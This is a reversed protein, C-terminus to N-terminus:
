RAPPIAQLLANRRLFGYPDFADELGGNGASGNQQSNRNLYEVGSVNYTVNASAGARIFINKNVWDQIRTSTTHPLWLIDGAAMHFNADKGTALRRVDLKVQLDKGGPMRRILTGERIRLDSRPGGAAALVQLYTPRVGSPYNQPGAVGVLGGVYVTNPDAAEVTLIDGDELPDLALAQELSVADTLDIREEHMPRRVRKLTARGSASQSVGGAAAIAFLPNCETRRLPILGPATVAGLVLVHTSDFTEVDVVVSLDRVVAPVFAQRIRAEVDELALGVVPVAGVTPLLVQGARNVRARLPSPLGLDVGSLGIVLMDGPGVRYPGMGREVASAAGAAPEIPVATAQGNTPRREIALFEQFSVRHDRACASV